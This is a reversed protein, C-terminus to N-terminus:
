HAGCDNLLAFPRHSGGKRRVKRGFTAANKFLVICIRVHTKETELRLASSISPTADIRSRRV